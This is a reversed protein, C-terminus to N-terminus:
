GREERMQRVDDAMSRQLRLGRARLREFKDRAQMRRVEEQLLRRALENPNIGRGTLYDVVAPDERFQVRTVLTTDAPPYTFM